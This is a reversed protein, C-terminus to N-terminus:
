FRIRFEKAPTNKDHRLVDPPYQLSGCDIEFGNNTVLATLLVETTNCFLHHLSFFASGHANLPDDNQEFRFRGEGASILAHIALRSIAGVYDKVITLREDRRFDSRDEGIFRNSCLERIGYERWDAIWCQETQILQSGEAEFEAVKEDPIEFRFRLSRCPNDTFFGDPVNAGDSDAFEPKESAYRTMWFWKVEPHSEVLPKVVRGMLTEAWFQDYPKAAPAYIRTQRIAM